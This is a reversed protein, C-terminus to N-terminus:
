IEIQTNQMRQLLPKVKQLGYSDDPLPLESFHNVGGDFLLPCTNGGGGERGAIIELFRCNDKLQKIDYGMYTDIAHRYPSFIGLITDADRVIVKADGIGDLTPKLKGLRANENSEQSMQQQVVGVLTYKYKNRLEIFYESSLKVMSERVSGGKEPSLLSLHDVIVIVHENHDFPEYYDDVEKEILTGTTKDTYTVKKRHMIGNANAYDKMFYYIGTPNRESTIIEMHSEYFEYIQKFEDTELIEIINDPLEKASNLSRLDKPAARIKGDSLDWLIKSMIQLAIQEPALELSFFFIKLNIKDPNSFAYKIPAHLFLENTLQSKASKTSGTVIYYSKREIGSLDESFRQFGHPISNVLGSKVREKNQKIADLAREFLGM